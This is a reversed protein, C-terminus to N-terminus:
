VDTRGALVALCYPDNDKWDHTKKNVCRADEIAQSDYGKACGAILAIAVFLAAWWIWNGKEPQKTM